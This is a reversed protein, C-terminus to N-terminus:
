MDCMKHPKCNQNSIYYVNVFVLVIVEESATSRTDTRQGSTHLGRCLVYGGYLGNGTVCVCMRYVSLVSIIHLDLVSIRTHLKCM